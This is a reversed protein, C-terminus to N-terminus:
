EGELMIIEGQEVVQRIDAELEVARLAGYNGDVESAVFLRVEKNPDCKQLAEIVEGATMKTRQITKPTALGLMRATQEMTLNM